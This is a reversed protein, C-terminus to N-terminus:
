KVKISHHKHPFYFTFTKMARKLIKFIPLQGKFRVLNSKLNGALVIFFTVESMSIKDEVQLKGLWQNSSAM